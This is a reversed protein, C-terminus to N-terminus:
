LPPRWTVMVWSANSRVTCAGRGRGGILYSGGKPGVGVMTLSMQYGDSFVQEFVNVQLSGGGSTSVDPLWWLMYSQSASSVCGVPIIEQKNKNACSLLDKLGPWSALTVLTWQLWSLLQNIVDDSSLVARTHDNPKGSGTIVKLMTCFLKRDSLSPPKFGEFTLSKLLAKIWSPFQQIRAM